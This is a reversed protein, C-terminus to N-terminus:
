ARGRYNLLRLIFFAPVVIVAGLILWEGFRGFAAFGKEWLNVFFDRLGYIIDAPYIGFVNMAMGVLISIVILKIITRLVTDGLFSNVSM